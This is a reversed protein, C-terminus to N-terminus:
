QQLWRGCRIFAVLKRSAKVRVGTHWEPRFGPPQLAWQLFAPSYNFRPSLLNYILLLSSQAETQEAVNALPSSGYLCPLLCATRIHYATHCCLRLILAGM